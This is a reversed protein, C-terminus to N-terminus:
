VSQLGVIMNMGYGSCLLNMDSEVSGKMRNERRAYGPMILCERMM